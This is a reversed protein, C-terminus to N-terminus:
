RGVWLFTRSWSDVAVVSPLSGSYAVAVFSCFVWEVFVCGSIHSLFVGLM